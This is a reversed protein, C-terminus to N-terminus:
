NKLKQSNNGAKLQAFFIALRRLMQNPTLINLWQGQQYQQNFDLIKEVIDEIEYSKEIKIELESIKETEHMLGILGSEIM